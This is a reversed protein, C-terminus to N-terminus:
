CVRQSITPISHTHFSYVQQAVQFLYYRSRDLFGLIRGHPDTASVVCCERDAFTILDMKIFIQLIFRQIELVTSVKDYCKISTWALIVSLLYLTDLHFTDSIFNINQFSIIM